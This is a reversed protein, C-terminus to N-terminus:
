RDLGQGLFPGPAKEQRLALIGALEGVLEITLEGDEPV